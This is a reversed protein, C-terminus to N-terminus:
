YYLLIWASFRGHHVETSDTFSVFTAFVPLLDWLSNEQAAAREKKSGEEFHGFKRVASSISLKRAVKHAIKKISDKGHLKSQKTNADHRIEDLTDVFINSHRVFELFMDRCRWAHM